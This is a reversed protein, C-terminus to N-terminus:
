HIKKILDFQELEAVQQSLQNEIEGLVKISQCFMAAKSELSDVKSNIELELEEGITSIRDGLAGVRSENNTEENSTVAEGVATLISGISETMISEIEQEFQGAFIEDFDDFDQPAIYFNQDSQNFRKRLRWQLEDFRKKSSKILPVIKAQSM